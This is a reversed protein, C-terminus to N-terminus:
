PRAAEDMIAVMTREVDAATAQLEPRGFLQLLVTPKIMALTTGRAGAYVAVRCPLATAISLDAELVRKAQEPQCVEYIRCAKSFAINRKAMSAQLDHVALVGFGHRGAAAELDKGAQEPTKDTDVTYLM